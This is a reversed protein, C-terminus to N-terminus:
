EYVLCEPWKKISVEHYISYNYAHVADNEGATLVPAHARVLSKELDVAPGHDLM